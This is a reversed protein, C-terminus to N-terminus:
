NNELIILVNNLVITLIKVNKIILLSTKIM